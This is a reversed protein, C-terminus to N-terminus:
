SKPAVVIYRRWPLGFDRRRTQAPWVERRIMLAHDAYALAEEHRQRAWLSWAMALSAEGLLWTADLSGPYETALADGVRIATDLASQCEKWEANRRHYLRRRLSAELLALRPPFARPLRAAVKAAARAADDLATGSLCIGELADDRWPRQATNAIM